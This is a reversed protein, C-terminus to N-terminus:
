LTHGLALQHVAISKVKLVTGGKLDVDLRRNIKASLSDQRETDEVMMSSNSNMAAMQIEICAALLM